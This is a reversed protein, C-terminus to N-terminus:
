GMREVVRGGLYWGSEYYGWRMSIVRLWVGERMGSVMGVM